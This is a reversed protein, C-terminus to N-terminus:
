KLEHKIFEYLYLYDKYIDFPEQDPFTDKLFIELFDLLEDVTMSNLLAEPMTDWDRRLKRLYSILTVRTFYNFGHEDEVSTFYGLEDSYIFNIRKDGKSADALAKLVNPAVDELWNFETSENLDETQNYFTIIGDTINFDFFPIWSYRPQHSTEMSSYFELEAVPGRENYTIEPKWSATRGDCYVYDHLLVNPMTKVVKVIIKEGKDYLDRLLESESHWGCDILINFFRPDIDKIEYYKDMQLDTVNDTYPKADKVWDFDDSEHLYNKDNKYLIVTLDRDEDVFYNRWFVHNKTWNDYHSDEDSGSIGMDRVAEWYDISINFTCDNFNESVSNIVIKFPKKSWNKGSDYYKGHLEGMLTFEDGENFNGTDFYHGLNPKEDEVWDFDSNENVSDVDELEGDTYVLDDPNVPNGELDYLDYDGGKTRYILNDVDMKNKRLEGFDRYKYHVSLKGDEPDDSLYMEDVKTITYKKENYTFYYGVLDKPHILKSSDTWDFDDSETITGHIKDGMLETVKRYIEQIGDFDQIGYNQKMYETFRKYFTSPTILPLKSDSLTRKRVTFVINVWPVEIYDVGVVNSINRWEIKNYIEKAITGNTKIDNVWDFSDMEEKIYKKISM